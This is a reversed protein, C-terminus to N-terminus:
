ESGGVAEDIIDHLNEVDRPNKLQLVRIGEPIANKVFGFFETVDDDRVTMRKHNKAIRCLEQMNMELFEELRNKMEEVASPSVFFKEKNIKAHDRMCAGINIIAM